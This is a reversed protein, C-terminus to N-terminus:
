GQDGMNNIKDALDERILCPNNECEFSYFGRVQEKCTSFFLSLSPFPSITQIITLINSDANSDLLFCVIYLLVFLCVFLCTICLTDNTEKVHKYSILFYTLTLIQKFRGYVFCIVIM